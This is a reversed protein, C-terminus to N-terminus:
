LEIRRRNRQARAVRQHILTPFPALQPADHLEAAVIKQPRKSFSFTTVCKARMAPSFRTEGSSFDVPM